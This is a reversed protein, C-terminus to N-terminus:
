ASGSVLSCSVREAGREYLRPLHLAEVDRLIDAAIPFDRLRDVLCWFRSWPEPDSDELDEQWRPRRSGIEEPRSLLFGLALGATHSPEASTVDGWRLHDFFQEAQLRHYPLAFRHWRPIWREVTMLGAMAEASKALRFYLAAEPEPLRHSAAITALAHVLRAARAGVCPHERFQGDHALMALHLPLDPEHTTELIEARRHRLRGTELAVEFLFPDLSRLDATPDRVPALIREFRDLQPTAAFHAAAEARAFAMAHHWALRGRDFFGQRRTFHSFAMLQRHYEDQCKWLGPFSPQHQKEREQLHRSRHVELSCERRLLQFWPARHRPLIRLLEGLWHPALPEDRRELWEELILAHWAQRRESATTSSHALRVADVLRVSPGQQASGWLRRAATLIPHAEAVQFRDFANVRAECRTCGRGLHDVTQRLEDLNSPPEFVAELDIPCVM